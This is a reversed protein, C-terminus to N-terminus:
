DQPRSLLQMCGRVSLVRNKQILRRKRLLHPLSRMVDLRARFLATEGGAVLRWLIDLEYKLLFSLTALILGWPYDKIITFIRNREMHYVLFRRDQRARTAGQKHYVVAGPVYLCKWGFLQARLSLDFEENYAFYDADFLGVQDLMSRRYFASAGHAGFVPAQADFQGEDKKAHGRSGAYGGRFFVLGAADIIGPRFFDMQKSACSGVTEDSRIAEVLRAIWEPEVRTDNNLLAVFESGSAEIGQNAAPAFGTNGANEILTVAPYNTRVFDQSGDSSGNDVVITELDRYTQRM